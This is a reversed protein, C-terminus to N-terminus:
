NEAVGHEREIGCRQLKVAAQDRPHGGPFRLGQLLEM